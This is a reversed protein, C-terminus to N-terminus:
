KKQKRQIRKSKRVVTKPKGEKLTRIAKSEIIETGSEDSDDLIKKKVRKLGPQTHIYSNKNAKQFLDAKKKTFFANMEKELVNESHPDMLIQGENDELMESNNIDLILEKIKMVRESIKYVEIGRAYKQLIQRISFLWNERWEHVKREIKLELSSKARNEESYNKVIREIDDTLTDFKVFALHILSYALCVYGEFFSTAYNTNWTSDQDIEKFSKSKKSKKKSYRDVITKLESTVRVDITRKLYEVQAMVKTTNIELKEDEKYGLTLPLLGLILESLYNIYEYDLLQYAKKEQFYKLDLLEILKEMMERPYSKKIEKLLQFLGKLLSNGESDFASNQLLVSSFSSKDSKQIEICRRLVTGHKGLIKHLDLKFFVKADKRSIDKIVELAAENFKMGVKADIETINDNICILFFEAAQQYPILGQQYCQNMVKFCIRRMEINPSFLIFLYKTIDTKLKDIFDGINISDKQCEEDLRMLFEHYTKLIMVKSNDDIDYKNTFYLFLDLLHTNSRLIEPVKLWIQSIMYLAGEIVYICVSDEETAKKLVVECLVHLCKWGNEDMFITFISTMDGITKMVRNLANWNDLNNKNEKLYVVRQAFLRDEFTFDNLCTCIHHISQLIKRTTEVELPASLWKSLSELIKSPSIKENMIIKSSLNILCTCLSSLLNVTMESSSSLISFIDYIDQPLEVGSLIFSNIINCFIYQKSKKLDRIANKLFKTIEKDMKLSLKKKTRPKRKTEKQSFTVEDNFAEENHSDQNRFEIIKKLLVDLTDEANLHVYNYVHVLVDYGGIEPLSKAGRKKSKKNKQTTSSYTYLNSDSWCTDKTFTFGSTLIKSLFKSIKPLTQSSDQKHTCVSTLLDVLLILGKQKLLSQSKDYDSSHEIITLLIEVSKKRVRSSSDYARALLIDVLSELSLSSLDQKFFPLITAIIDIANLRTSPNKSCTLYELRKDITSIFNVMINNEEFWKAQSLYLELSQKICELAKNRVSALQHELTVLFCNNVAIFLNMCPQSSSSLLTNKDVLEYNLLINQYAYEAIKINMVSNVKEQMRIKNVIEDPSGFRISISSIQPNKNMSFISLYTMCHSVTKSLKEYEKDVQTLKKEEKTKLSRGYKSKKVKADDRVKRVTIRTSFPDSQTKQLEQEIMCFPCTELAEEEGVGEACIEHFAYLNCVACSTISFDEKAEEKSDEQYLNRSCYVCYKHTRVKNKPNRELPKFAKIARIVKQSYDSLIDIFTIKVNSSIDKSDEGCVINLSATCLCKMLLIQESACSLPNSLEQFQYFECKSAIYKLTNGYHRKTTESTIMLGIFYDIVWQVTDKQCEQIYKPTNEEWFEFNSEIYFDEVSLFCHICSLIYHFLLDQYRKACQKQFKTAKPISNEEIKALMKELISKLLVKNCFPLCEERDSQSEFYNIVRETFNHSHETECYFYLQSLLEKCQDRFGHVVMISYLIDEVLMKNDEKLYKVSKSVLQLFHQIQSFELASYEEDSTAQDEEKNQSSSIEVIMSEVFEFYIKDIDQHVKEIAYKQLTNSSNILSTIDQELQDLDSDFESKERDCCSNSSTASDITEM